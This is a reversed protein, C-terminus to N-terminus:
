KCLKFITPATPYLNPVQHLILDAERVVVRRRRVPVEGIGHGSQPVVELYCYTVSVYTEYLLTTQKYQTGLMVHVTTFYLASHTQVKHSM